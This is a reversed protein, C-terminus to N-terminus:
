IFKNKAKVEQEKCNMRIELAAMKKRLSDVEAKLVMESADKAQKLNNLNTTLTRGGMQNEQELKRIREKLEENVIQIGHCEKNKNVIQDRLYNLENTQKQQLEVFATAENNKDGNSYM